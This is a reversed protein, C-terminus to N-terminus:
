QFAFAYREPGPQADYFLDEQVIRKKQATSVTKVDKHVLVDKIHPNKKMLMGYPQEQTTIQANSYAAICLIVFLLKTKMKTKMKTLVKLTLLKIVFEYRIVRCPLLLM